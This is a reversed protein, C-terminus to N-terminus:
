PSVTLYPSLSAHATREEVGLPSVRHPSKSTNAIPHGAKGSVFILAAQISVLKERM